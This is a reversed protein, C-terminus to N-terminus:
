GVTVDEGGEVDSEKENWSLSWSPKRSRMV